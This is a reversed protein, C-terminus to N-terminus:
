FGEERKKSNPNLHSFVEREELSIKVSLKNKETIETQRAERMTPEALAAQARGNADESYFM